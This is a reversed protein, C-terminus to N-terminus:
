EKDKPDNVEDAALTLAVRDDGRGEFKRKDQDLGSEVALPVVTLDDREELAARVADPDNAVSNIASHADDEPKVQRDVFQAKVGKAADEEVELWPHSRANALVVPDTTEYPVEFNANALSFSKQDKPAVDNLVIKAM